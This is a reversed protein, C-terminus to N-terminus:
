IKYKVSTLEKEIERLIRKEDRVRERQENELRDSLWWKQNSREQQDSFKM